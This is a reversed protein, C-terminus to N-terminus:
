GDDEGQEHKNTKRKAYNGGVSNLAAGIGYSLGALFVIGFPMGLPLFVYWWRYLGVPHFIEAGILGLTLLM